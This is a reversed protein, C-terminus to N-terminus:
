EEEDGAIENMIMMDKVDDESMYKLCAIIVYERSLLGEDIMDILRNTYERTM